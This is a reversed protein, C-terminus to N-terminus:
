FHLSRCFESLDMMNSFFTLFM